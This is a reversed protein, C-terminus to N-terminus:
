LPGCIFDFISCRGSPLPSLTLIVNGGILRLPTLSLLGRERFYKFIWTRERREVNSDMFRPGNFLCSSSSECILSLHFLPFPNGYLLLFSLPFATIVQSPPYYWVISLPSELSLLSASSIDLVLINSVSQVSVGPTFTVLRWLCIFAIM